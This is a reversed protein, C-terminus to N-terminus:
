GGIKKSIRAHPIDIIEIACRTIAEMSFGNKWVLDV